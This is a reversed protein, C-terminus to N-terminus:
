IDFDLLDCIDNNMIYVILKENYKSILEKLYKVDMFCLDCRYIILNKFNSVGISQLYDFVESVNNKMIGLNYVFKGDFRGKIEAIDDNSLGYKSLFDIM